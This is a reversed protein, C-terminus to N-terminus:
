AAAKAWRLEGLLANAWLGLIEVAALLLAALFLLHDLM